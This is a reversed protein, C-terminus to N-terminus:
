PTKELAIHQAFLLGLIVWFVLFVHLSYYTIDSANILVTVVIFPLLRFGQYHWLVIMMGVAPILWALLGLIGETALVQVVFNHTHSITVPLGKSKAREFLKSDDIGVIPSALFDLWGAQMAQWRLSEGGSFDFRKFLYYQIPIPYKIVLPGVEEAIELQAGWAHIDIAEGPELTELRLQLSTLTNSTGAPTICRQWETSVDCISASLNTNLVVQQPRDARLYISGIYPKSQEAFGMDQYIVAKTTPGSQSIIRDARTLAFPGAIDDPVVTLNESFRYQIWNTNSFNNSDDLVNASALMEDISTVISRTAIGIGVATSTIVVILALYWLRSTRHILLWLLVAAIFALLAARSGTNILALLSLTIIFPYSRPKGTALMATALFAIAAALLNPNGYYLQVRADQLGEWTAGTLGVLITLLVITYFFTSVRIRYEEFAAARSVLWYIISFAMVLYIAHNVLQLWEGYIVSPLIACVFAISFLIGASSIITKSM